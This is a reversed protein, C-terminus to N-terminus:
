EVGASDAAAMAEILLRIALNLRLRRVIETHSAGSALLERLPVLYSITSQTSTVMGTPITYNHVITSGQDPQRRPRRLPTARPAQISAAM